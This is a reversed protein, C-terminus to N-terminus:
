NMVMNIIKMLGLDVAWLYLSLFVVAVIVVMTYSTVEDRTPWTVKRLEERAEKIFQLAKKM